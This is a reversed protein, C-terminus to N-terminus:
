PEGKAKIDKFNPDNPDLSVTYTTVAVQSGSSWWRLTHNVKKDPGSSWNFTIESFNNVGVVKPQANTNYMRLRATAAHFSEAAQKRQTPTAGAPLAPVPRANLQIQTPTPLLYDLRYRYDPPILVEVDWSVTETAMIGLDPAWLELTGARFDVSGVVQTPLPVTSKYKKLAVTKRSPLNWGIYGEPRHKRILKLFKATKPAYSYGDRQFGRTSDTEKKFSSAVLQAIVATAPQPTTDEFRNTARYVLRTAFSHHVDGSLLIAQGNRHKNSDFPFKDTLAKLLRDFAPSPAEWAEYVDPHHEFTNALLDFRAAARIPEVPPSNTSLVVLLVRNELRPTKLIQQRFQEITLFESPENGGHPYSRWTRTDTFVVQHGPGEVTYHYQLSHPDHFLQNHPSSKLAADDHLGLLSSILASQQEVSTRKKDWINPLTPNPTDLTRLLDLGPPAPTTDAFQEPVNGWHQCLAYAALANRAVRLGLPNGYFESCIKRTMNWDDAVEHDDFIMYSPINALARRAKSLGQRFETVSTIDSEISAKKKKLFKEWRERPEGNTTVNELVDAFSPLGSTPWLVESWVFLYMCLYEGLSLLHSDLDESTFNADELMRRRLFPSAKSAIRAGGAPEVLPILEKWELLTDSADSLMILMSAAVDDAYIQDGTLLLQHPRAFANAATEAILDDIIPFTDKGQAHPMRCSGQLLRLRNPDKPPWAFSPLAHPTYALKANLTAAALDRVRGDDFTFSLEYRYVIGEELEFLPSAAHATVAVIHLNKGIAISRRMGTMRVENSEDRVHLFVNAGLRLALWVTVTKPTLQRLIPGALVHPLKDLRKALPEWAM